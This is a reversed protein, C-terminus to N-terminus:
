PERLVRDLHADPYTSVMETCTKCLSEAVEPRFKAGCEQCLVQPRQGRTGAVIRGNEPRRQRTM